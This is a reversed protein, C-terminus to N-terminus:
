EEEEEVWDSEEERAQHSVGGREETKSFRLSFYIDSSLYIYLAQTEQVTINKWGDMWIDVWGDQKGDKMTYNMQADLQNRDDTEANDLIQNRRCVMQEGNAEMEFECELSQMAQVCSTCTCTYRYPKIAGNLSLMEVITYAVREWPRGSPYSSM